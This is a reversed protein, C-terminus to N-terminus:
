PETLSQDRPFLARVRELDAPTDVGPGSSSKAIDVHIPHGHHMARLQELSEHREAPSPELGAFRTFFGARAAYIGIHRYHVIAPLSAITRGESPGSENSGPEISDDREALSAELSSRILREPSTMPSWGERHWPIPARSFYLARGTADFVVKVVAPDFLEQASEIPECLTAMACESREVLSASVQRILVPPLLPEDAQINVVVADPDLGLRSIAESIRESGSRHESSTAIARVGQAKAVDLIRADDGAVIVEDVGGALALECVRAIMPRGGIDALVKGPLRSSAYRAPIIAVCPRSEALSENM